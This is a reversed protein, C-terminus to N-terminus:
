KKRREREEKKKVLKEREFVEVIEGERECV